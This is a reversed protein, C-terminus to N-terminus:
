ADVTMRNSTAGPQDKREYTGGGTAKPKTCEPQDNIRTGSIGAPVQKELDVYRRGEGVPYTGNKKVRPNRKKMPDEGERSIREGRHEM